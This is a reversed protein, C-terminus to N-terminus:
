RAESSHTITASTSSAATTAATLIKSSFISIKFFTRWFTYHTPKSRKMKNFLAPIRAERFHPRRERCILSHSHLKAFCPDSPYIGYKLAGTYRSFLVCTPFTSSIRPAIESTWKEIFHLSPRNM